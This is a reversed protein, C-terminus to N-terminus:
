RKGGLLEIAQDDDHLWTWQEHRKIRSVQSLSVGYEAGITGCSRADTRIAIVQAETLKTVPRAKGLPLRGRRIMDDVNDADNGWRLHTPNVCPPNDCSHLAHPKGEPPEGAADILAIRHALFNSGNAHLQGYGRDNTYGSFIWCDDFESRITQDRVREILSMGDRRKAIPATSTDGRKKRKYHGNCLHTTSTLIDCGPVTCVKLAM